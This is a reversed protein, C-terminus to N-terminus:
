RSQRTKRLNAVGRKKDAEQETRTRADVVRVSLVHMVGDEDHATVQHLRLRKGEPWEVTIKALM